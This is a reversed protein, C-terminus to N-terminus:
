KVTILRDAPPDVEIVIDKYEDFLGGNHMQLGIPGSRAAAPDKFRAVETAASGVPQAVALRAEGNAGDVLLEIRSWDHQDVAPKVIRTFEADGADNRGPRYDWHGGTPVQFQIGGLADLPLDDGHPRSCFFLVCAAHDPNGYVHRVSFLLRFSRYDAETYIVGRGVGTSAMAGEQVIWGSPLSRALESPLADELLLRNLHILAAGRPDNQLLAQTGPRLIVDAFREAEYVPGGTIIKNLGHALPSRGSQPETKAAAISPLQERLADPLQDRLFALLAGSPSLLRGALSSADLIDEESFATSSNQVQIWGELTKGDFLSISTDGQASMKGAHSLACGAATFAIAEIFTRRTLDGSVSKL